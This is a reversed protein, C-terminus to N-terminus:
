MHKTFAYTTFLVVGKKKGSFVTTKRFMIETRNCFFFFFSFIRCSILFWSSCCFSYCLYVVFINLRKKNLKKTNPSKQLALGM